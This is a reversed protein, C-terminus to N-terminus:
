IRLGDFSTKLTLEFRESQEGPPHFEQRKAKQRDPKQRDPRHRDPRIEGPM